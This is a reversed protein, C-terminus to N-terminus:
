APVVSPCLYVCIFCSCFVRAASARLHVGIFGPHGAHVPTSRDTHMQTWRHNRKRSPSSASEQAFCQPKLCSLGPQARAKAPLPFSSGIHDKHQDNPQRKNTSDRRQDNPGTLALPLRRPPIPVAAPGAILMMDSKATQVLFPSFAVGSERRAHLKEGGEPTM